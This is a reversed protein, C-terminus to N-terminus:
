EGGVGGASGERPWVAGWCAQRVEEKDLIGSAHVAFGGVPPFMFCHHALGPVAPRDAGALQSEALVNNLYVDYHQPKTFQMHELLARAGAKDYVICQSGYAIKNIKGSNPNGDVNYGAWMIHGGGVRAAINFAVVLEHIEPRVAGSLDIPNTSQHLGGFKGMDGADPRLESYKVAGAPLEVTGAAETMAMPLWSSKPIDDREYWRFDGELVVFVTDDDHREDLM